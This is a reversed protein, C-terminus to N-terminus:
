LITENVHNEDRDLRAGAYVLSAITCKLSESSSFIHSINLNRFCKM